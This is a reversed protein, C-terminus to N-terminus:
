AILAKLLSVTDLTLADLRNCRARRHRISGMAVGGIWIASLFGHTAVRGTTEEFLLLVAIVWLIAMVSRNIRQHLRNFRQLGQLLRDTDPQQTTHWLAVLPDHPPTSTM